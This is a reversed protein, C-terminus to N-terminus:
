QSARLGTRFGLSMPHLRTNFAAFPCLVVHDHSADFAGGKFLVPYLDAGLTAVHDLGVLLLGGGPSSGNGTEALLLVRGVFCEGPYGRAGADEVLLCLDVSLIQRRARDQAVGGVAPSRCLFRRDEGLIPKANLRGRWKRELGEACVACGIQRKFQREFIGVQQRRRVDARAVEFDPQVIDRVLDGPICLPDRVEFPQLLNPTPMEPSIIQSLINSDLRDLLLKSAFLVKRQEDRSIKLHRFVFDVVDVNGGIVPRTQEDVVLQDNIEIRRAVDIGPEAFAKHSELLAQVSDIDLVVLCM